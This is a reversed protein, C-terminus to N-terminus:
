PKASPIQAATTQRRLWEFVAWTAALDEENYKLIEGMRQNREVEDQTETALIFQAMAWSGGYEDQTRKFGVYEEVVKLSYSPLPLAIASKTIPLLDLLNNLLRAAIGDSDGYREIYQSIHTKEYHHWHVVPIDGYDNFVKKAANLFAQWGDGDGNAGFGATVGMFGSPRKGYVQMGWLYIKELEDLYPPMGELDFMVYNEHVPIIAPGLTREKGSCLVDAYLLIKEAKKGVKQEGKGWPRKFESLRKADFSALLQEASTVGVANLARALGQDVDMVLSVDQRTEAQQWCRDYYGCGGSCKTWGLPEYPEAGLQRIALIDTLEALAAAGGDHPVDVIDGNGVHVQLHKAPTGVMQEFLWGYLQLQLSIEIHHKEDVKRSLKSDRILYGDGDLILFDPRGVISVSTGGFIKDCALEGQYIVPVRNRIAEITRQVRQDPSVASLDEYTGLTALHSHEHRQGLTRLIEEFVSAEAEPVKQERLYVRLACLTPRYHNFIDSATLRMLHERRQM